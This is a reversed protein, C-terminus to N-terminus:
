RFAHSLKSSGDGVHSENSQCSPTPQQNSAESGRCLLTQTDKYCPVPKSSLCIHFSCPKWSQTMCWGKGCHSVCPQCVLIHINSVLIIPFQRPALANVLVQLIYFLQLQIIIIYIIIPIVAKLLLAELGPSYLCSDDKMLALNLRPKKNTFIPLRLRVAM